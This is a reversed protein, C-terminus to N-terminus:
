RALAELLTVPTVGAKRLRTALEPDTLLDTDAQRERAIQGVSLGTHQYAQMDHHDLGPHFVIFKPNQGRCRNLLHDVPDDAPEGDALHPLHWQALGEQRALQDIHDQLSGQRPETIWGVGMHEDITQIAFGAQRAKLLQARIESMAEEISFGDDQLHKPTPKFFGNSDVLSPVLERPLVPGWKVSDWESNLTIHLGFCADDRGTLLSVGHEWALGPAM